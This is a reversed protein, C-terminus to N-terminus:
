QGLLSPNSIIPPAQESAVLPEGSDVRCQSGDLAYGVYLTEASATEWLLWTGRSPDTLCVHFADVGNSAYEALVTGPSLHAGLDGAKTITQDFYGTDISDDLAAYGLWTMDQSLNMISAQDRADNYADAAQPAAVATVVGIVATSIAYRIM